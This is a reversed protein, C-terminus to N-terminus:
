NFENRNLMYGDRIQQYCLKISSNLTRETDDLTVSGTAQAASLSASIHATVQIFDSKTMKVPLQKARSEFYVMVDHIFQTMDEPTNNM